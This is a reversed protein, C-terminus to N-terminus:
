GHPYASATLETDEVLRLIDARCPAARLVARAHRERAVWAILGDALSGNQKPPETQQIRIGRVFDHFM